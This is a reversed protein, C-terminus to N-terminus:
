FPSGLAGSLTAAGLFWILAVVPLAVILYVLWAIAGRIGVSSGLILIGIPGLFVEALAITTLTNMTDADRVIVPIGNGILLAVLAYAMPVVLALLAGVLAGRWSRSAM